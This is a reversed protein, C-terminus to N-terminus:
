QYAGVRMNGIRASAHVTHDSIHIKGSVPMNSLDEDPNPGARLIVHEIVIEETQTCLGLRIAEDYFNRGIQALM